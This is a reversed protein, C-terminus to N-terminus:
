KPFEKEFFKHTSPRLNELLKEDLIYISFNEAFAEMLDTMAYNSIGTDLTNINDKMAVQPGEPNAENQTTAAENEQDIKRNTKRADKVANVGDKELAKGFATLLQENAKTNGLEYGAISKASTAAKRQNVIEKELEAIKDKMQKEEASEGEKTDEGLGGLPDGGLDIKIKPNELKEKLEKKEKEAKEAANQANFLPRLDIAHGLEHVIEYVANSSAGVRKASDSFMDQWISVVDKGSDYHGDQGGPGKGSGEFKFSIGDLRSRIKEPILTVADVIVKGQDDSFSSGINIKIKGVSVEGKFSTGAAVPTSAAALTQAKEIIMKESPSTGYRIFRFVAHEGKHPTLDLALDYIHNPPFIDSGSTTSKSVLEGAVSKLGKKHNEDTITAGFEAPITLTVSTGEAPDFYEKTWKDVTPQDLPTRAIKLTKRKELPVDTLTKRSIEPVGNGQQVVHTLEHALLHKGAASDPSYEGKNFFVDAGYTFARANLRESMQVAQPDTHVRVGSFDHGFAQNMTNQLPGPLASGRGKAGSLQSSLGDPAASSGEASKRMLPKRQIEEEEECTACKRQISAAPTMSPAHRSLGMVHDAMADAEREYRDNPKNVTLKTQVTKSLKSFSNM